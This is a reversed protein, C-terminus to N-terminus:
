GSLYGGCGELCQLKQLGQVDSHVQPSHPTSGSEGLILGFTTGKVSEVTGLNAQTAFREARFGLISTTAEKM